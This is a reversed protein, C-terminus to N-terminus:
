DSEALQVLFVDLLSYQLELMCLLLCSLKCFCFGVGLVRYEYEFSLREVNARYVRKWSFSLEFSWVGRMLRPIAAVYAPFFTRTFRLYDNPRLIQWTTPSVPVLNFRPQLSTSAIWARKRERERVRLSSAAFMNRSDYPQSNRKQFVNNIMVPRSDQSVRELILWPISFLFSWPPATFLDAAILAVSSKM